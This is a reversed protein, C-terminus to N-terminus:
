FILKLNSIIDSNEGRFLCFDIKQNHNFSLKIISNDDEMQLRVHSEKAACSADVSMESELNGQFYVIFTYIFQVDM